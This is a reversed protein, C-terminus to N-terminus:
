GKPPPLNGSTVRAFFGAGYNGLATRGGTNYAAGPFARGNSKAYIARGVAGTITGTISGPGATGTSYSYVYQGSSNKAPIFSASDVSNVLDGRQRIRAIRSASRTAQLGAIYSAYNFGTKIESNLQNGTVSVSGISGDTTISSNTVATGPNVQIYTPRGTRGLQVFNPNQATLATYNAPGIKVSGISGAAVAGGQLGAAPYGTSGLPIGYESAPILQTLSTPTGDPNPVTTKGTFVGTPDGLGKNFQVRGIRGKVDLAVADANGGFKANNISDMGSLGSSFPTTSRQATFNRSNGIVHLHNIGTTQLSTRGTTGVVNFFFQFAAPIPLSQPVGRWKELTGGQSSALYNPAIPSQTISVVTFNQTAGNISFQVSPTTLPGTPPSSATSDFVSNYISDLYISPKVSVPNTPNGILIQYPNTTNSRSTDIIALIDNFHLTKVGGYLFIGAPQTVAPNVDHSLNFGNLNITNVGDLAILQNFLVTGSSLNRNSSIVTGTVYTTRPNSNIIQITNIDDDLQGDNPTTDTVIVQGPGHVTITWQNGQRDVGSVIKGQNSLLDSNPNNHQVLSRISTPIRHHTIPNTVYVDSPVYLSMYSSLGNSLVQRSELWEPTPSQRRRASDPRDSRQRTSGM